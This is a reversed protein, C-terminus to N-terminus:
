YRVIDNESNHTMTAALKLPNITPCQKTKSLEDSYTCMYSKPKTNKM